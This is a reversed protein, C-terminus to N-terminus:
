EISACVLQIRALEDKSLPRFVHPEPMLNDKADSSMTSSTQANSFVRTLNILARRIEVYTATIMRRVFHRICLLRVM